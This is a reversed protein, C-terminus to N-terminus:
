GEGPPLPRRAGLGDAGSYLRTALLIAVECGEHVDPLVIVDLETLLIVQHIQLSGAASVEQRRSKVLDASPSLPM